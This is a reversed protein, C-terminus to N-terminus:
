PTGWKAKLYSYVSTVEGDTLSRSYVVLERLRYDAGLNTQRNGIPSQINIATTAATKTTVSTGIAFNLTTGNRRFRLIEPGSFAGPAVINPATGTVLSSNWGSWGSWYLPSRGESSGEVSNPSDTFSLLAGTNSYVGFVTCDNLALNAALDMRQGTTVRLGLTASYNPRNLVTSQTANRGNGSKDAWLEVNSSGDLTVTAADSADLWLALGSIDTPSFSAASASHDDLIDRLAPNM